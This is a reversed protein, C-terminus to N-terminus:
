PDLTVGVRAVFADIPGMTSGLSPALHWHIVTDYRYNCKCSGCTGIECSSAGRFGNEQLVDLLPRDAPVHM